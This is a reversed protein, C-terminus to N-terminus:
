VNVNRIRCLAFWLGIYLGTDNDDPILQVPVDQYCYAVKEGRQEHMDTAVANAVRIANTQTPAFCQFQMGVELMTGSHNIGNGVSPRTSLMIIPGSAPVNYGKPLDVGGQIHRTIAFPLTVTIPIQAQIVSLVTPALTPNLLFKRVEEFANVM